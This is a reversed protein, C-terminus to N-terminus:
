CQSGWSVTLQGRGTSKDRNWKMEFGDEKLVKELDDLYQTEMLKVETFGDHRLVADGEISYTICTDRVNMDILLKMDDVITNGVDICYKRRDAEDIELSARQYNRISEANYKLAM